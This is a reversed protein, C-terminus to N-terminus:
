LAFQRGYKPRPQARIELRKEHLLFDVTCEHKAKKMRLDGIADPTPHKPCLLLAPPNVTMEGPDENLQRWRTVRKDAGAVHGQRLVDM